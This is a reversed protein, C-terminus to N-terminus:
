EVGASDRTCYREFFLDIGPSLEPSAKCQFGKNTLINDRGRVEGTTGAAGAPNAARRLSTEAQGVGTARYPAVASMRQVQCAPPRNRRRAAPLREAIPAQRTLSGRVVPRHHPRRLGLSLTARRRGPDPPPAPTHEYRSIRVSFLSALAGEALQADDLVLFEAPEVSPNQNIYVWYNMIALAQARGYLRLDRPLFQDGRGEFRVTPLGSDRAENEVQRALTKNGTLIAVRRGERRWYDLVLLATLTKGAGTPLEVAIDSLAHAEAAYLHLAETQAPRLEAFRTNATPSIL